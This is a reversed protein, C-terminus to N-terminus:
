VARAAMRSSKCGWVRLSQSGWEAPNTRATLPGYVWPKNFGARPGSMSVAKRPMHHIYNNSVRNNGSQWMVIGHSHWYLLGSHHIHNNLIQKEKNVDKRGPGNGILMIGGQGM